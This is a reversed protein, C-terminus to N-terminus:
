NSQALRTLMRQALQNNRIDILNSLLGANSAFIIGCPKTAGGCMVSEALEGTLAMDFPISHLPISILREALASARNWAKSVIDSIRSGVPAVAPLSKSVDEDEEAEDPRCQIAQNGDYSCLWVNGGDPLAKNVYEDVAAVAGQPQRAHVSSAIMSLLMLFVALYCNIM